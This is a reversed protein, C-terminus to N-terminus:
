LSAMEPTKIEVHRNEPNDSGDTNVNRTVQNFEDFWENM